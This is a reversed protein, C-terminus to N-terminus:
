PLLAGGKLLAARVATYEVSQVDHGGQAALAALIGGAQGTAMAIPTVRVAASAEHTASIARGVVVLNEPTSAFMVRMPIQYAADPALHTHNTQEKDPSHIDIPYGGQAIPDPFHIEAVLEEATLTHMGQIHRSERVGIHVSTGINVANEFGPCKAKLFKYLARCQERGTREAISIDVSDTPDLGQIRTTNVIVIGEVATEFFLVLDRPIDLEGSEIAERWQSLYGALSIRPTNRLCKLGEDEGFPFYFDGPNEEVYKRIRASDVNAIKLNMTMPQTANDTGRGMTCPVGARFALDGDGTADIFVSGRFREMGSKGCALVSVVRGQDLEADALVSHYRISGGSDALMTELELKLAESDFPTVTSCYTISDPIHGPSAGQTVLRDVLEQPLGGVLQRGVHNHFSMMPGVGMATLAGGPFGHRELVLVDAGERAAAIAAMMGSVGGGVVVVDSLGCDKVSIEAKGDRYKM